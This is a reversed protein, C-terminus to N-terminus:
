DGFGFATLYCMALFSAIGFWVALSVPPIILARLVALITGKKDIPETRKRWRKKTGNEDAYLTKIRTFASIDDCWVVMREGPRLVTNVEDSAAIQYKMPVDKEDSFYWGAVDVPETSRNFLELWDARKGYDNM